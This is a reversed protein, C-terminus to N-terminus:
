NWRFCPQLNWWRWSIEDKRLCPNWKRLLEFDFAFSGFIDKEYGLSLFSVSLHRKRQYPYLLSKFLLPLSQWYIWTFFDYIVSLLFIHLKKFIIKWFPNVFPSNNLIICYDDALASIRSHRFQCVRVNSPRTTWVTRTWTGDRAGFFCDVM